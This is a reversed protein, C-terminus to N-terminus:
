EDRWDVYPLFGLKVCKRYATKKIELPMDTIEQVAKYVGAKMIKKDVDANINYKKCFEKIGKWDDKMVANIMAENRDKVFQSAFDDM